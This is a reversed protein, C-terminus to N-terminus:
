ISKKINITPDEILDVIDFNPYRIGVDIFYKKANALLPKTNSKCKIPLLYHNQSEWGEIASETIHLIKGLQKRSMRTAVRSVKFQFKNLNKNLEESNDIRLGQSEMLISSTTPFRLGREEYFHKLLLCTRTNCSLFSLNPTIAEIRTLTSTHIGIAEAIDKLYLNLAARAARVQFGTLM